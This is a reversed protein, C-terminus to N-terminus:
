EYRLSEVPNQQAARKAPSIGFIIGTLSAVGFSVLIAIPSVETIIDSFSSILFSALIGFIIGILGGSLSILLAEFLFQSIIDEKKAGIALRTGIEKTRELVSALMINMIGIGGVLLSIAAIAILVYNFIDKTKQQQELLQQPISIEFDVQNNHTRKLLKSIVQATSGM